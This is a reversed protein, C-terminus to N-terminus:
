VDKRCSRSRFRGGCNASILWLHAGGLYFELAWDEHIQGCSVDLDLVEDLHLGSIVVYSWKM